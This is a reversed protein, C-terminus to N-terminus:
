GSRDPPSAAGGDADSLELRRGWGMPPAPVCMRCHCRGLPGEAAWRAALEAFLADLFKEQARSLEQREQLKILHGVIAHIEKRGM